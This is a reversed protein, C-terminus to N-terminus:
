ERDQLKSPAFALALIANRLGATEAAITRRLDQDLVEQRFEAITDQVASPSANAPFRLDCVIEEGDVRFDPSFRDIFRYAAKKITDLPYVIASFRVTEQVPAALGSPSPM